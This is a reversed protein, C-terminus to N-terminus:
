DGRLVFLGVICGLVFSVFLGLWPQNEVGQEVAEVARGGQASVEKYFEALGTAIEDLLTRTTEDANRKLRHVRDDIDNKLGALDDRFEANAEGMAARATDSM